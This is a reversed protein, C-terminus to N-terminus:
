KRARRTGRRRRRGGDRKKATYYPPADGSKERAVAAAHRAVPHFKKKTEAEHKREHAKNTAMQAATRYITGLAIRRQWDPVGGRRTARHKRTHTM